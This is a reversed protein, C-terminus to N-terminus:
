LGSDGNVKLFRSQILRESELKLQHNGLHEVTEVHGHLAPRQGHLFEVEYLEKVILNSQQAKELSSPPM